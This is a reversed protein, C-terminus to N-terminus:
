LVHLFHVFSCVLKAMMVFIVFIESVLSKNVSKRNFIWMKAQCFVQMVGLSQVQVNIENYFYTLGGRAECARLDPQLEENEDTCSLIAGGASTSPSSDNQLVYELNNLRLTKSELLRKLVTYGPLFYSVVSVGYNIDNRSIIDPRIETGEKAAEIFEEFFTRFLTAICLVCRLATKPSRLYQVDTGPM